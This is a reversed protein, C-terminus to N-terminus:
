SLQQMLRNLDERHADGKKTM